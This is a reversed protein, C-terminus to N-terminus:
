PPLRVRDVIEEGLIGGKIILSRKRNWLYGNMWLLRFMFKM